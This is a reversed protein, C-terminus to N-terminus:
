TTDAPPAAAPPRSTQRNSGRLGLSGSKRLCWSECVPSISGCQSSSAATSQHQPRPSVVARQYSTSGEWDVADSASCGPASQRVADWAPGAAATQATGLCSHSTMSRSTALNRRSVDDVTSLTWNWTERVDSNFCNKLSSMKASVRARTDETSADLQAPPSSQSGTSSGRRGAPAGKSDSRTTSSFFSCVATTFSRRAVSASCRACSSAVISRSELSAFWYSCNLTFREMPM